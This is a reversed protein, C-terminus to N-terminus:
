IIKKLYREADLAAKCGSSAAVIAQRYKCDFVDGAAFVGPVSTNTEDTIKLFGYDSRELQNEFINTNPTLGVSVFVGDVAMDQVDGTKQNVIRAGTVHLGDGTISQVTSNYIIKIAPNNVVKEQMASSATLQDRIHIITIKDTFKTLFSANEMATDGGGVVIVSKGQYFNGDCVACTTVGKGWYEQEGPCGIKRPCAGTAILLSETTLQKNNNVWLTFPKKSLDVATVMGGMFSAGSSKAQERMKIMLEPGLISQEGPWNEVISTGMLQGGPENGDIVLPSLNARGAYIAATLGAPGSGLIILPRHTIIDM